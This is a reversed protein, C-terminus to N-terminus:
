PRRTWDTSYNPRTYTGAARGSTEYAAEFGSYGFGNWGLTVNAGISVSTLQNDSFAEEGISTVSSPISISSLQNRAFAVQIKDAHVDMGVWCTNNKSM